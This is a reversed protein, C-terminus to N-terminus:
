RSAKEREHFGGRMLEPGSRENYEEPSISRAVGVGERNVGSPM